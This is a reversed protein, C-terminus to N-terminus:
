GMICWPLYSPPWGPFFLGFPSTQLSTEVGDGSWTPHPVGCWCRVGGGKVWWFNHLSGEGWGLNPLPNWQGEGPCSFCLRNPPPPSTLPISGQQQHKWLQLFVTFCKLQSSFHVIFSEIELKWQSFEFYVSMTESLIDPNLSKWWLCVMRGVSVDCVCPFKVCESRSRLGSIKTSLTLRHMQISLIFDGSGTTWFTHGWCDSVCFLHFCLCGLM